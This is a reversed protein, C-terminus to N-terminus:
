GLWRSARSVAVRHLSTFMICGDSTLEARTEDSNSSVACALGASAACSACKVAGSSGFVEEVLLSIRRCRVPFSWDDAAIRTASRAPDTFTETCADSGTNRSDSRDLRPSSDVWSLAVPNSPPSASAPRSPLETRSGAPNVRPRVAIREVVVDKPPSRCGCRSRRAGLRDTAAPVQVAFKPRLRGDLLFCIICSNPVDAKVLVASACASARAWACACAALLPLM